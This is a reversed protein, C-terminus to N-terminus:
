KWVLFLTDERNYYIRRGNLYMTVYKMVSPITIAQLSWEGFTVEAKDVVDGDLVERVVMDTRSDILLLKMVGDVQESTTLNLAFVYAPYRNGRGNTRSYGVATIIYMGDELECTDFNGNEESCLTFPKENDVRTRRGDVYFM